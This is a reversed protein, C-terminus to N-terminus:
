NTEIKNRIKIHSCINNDGLHTKGCRCTLPLSELDNDFYKLFNMTGGVNDINIHNGFQGNNVIPDRTIINFDLVCIKINDIEIITNYYKISDLIVEETSLKYKNNVIYNMINVQDSNNNYVKNKMLNYIKSMFKRANPKIIYFGTCVGLGLIKSCEKPFAGDDGIEKSIILDYNLNVLPEIDKEIIIDLDIHVVPQNNKILINLNNHLRVIDWWAYQFDNGNANNTETCIEVISNKCKNKIRDLWKKKIPDYKNGYCFTTVNFSM